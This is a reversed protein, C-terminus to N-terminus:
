GHRWWARARAVGYVVLGAAAVGAGALHQEAVILVVGLAVILTGGLQWAKLRRATGQTTVVGPADAAARLPAGCAPCAPAKDSVQASCEPCRILAM